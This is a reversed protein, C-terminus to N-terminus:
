QGSTPGRQALARQVRDVLVSAPTASTVPLMLWGGLALESIRDRDGDFASRTLGHPGWGDFDIGVKEPRYGVDICYRRGNVVVWIQQEPTRCGAKLLTSVAWIEGDSDSKEGVALCKDLIPALHAVRRRGRRRVDGLVAVVEAYSAIRYQHVKNLMREVSDDGLVASMDLATRAPTTCPIGDVVTLHKPPLFNSRHAKVGALRVRTAPGTTIEPRLSAIGPFGHLWAASRHSAVGDANLCAALIERRQTAPSGSVVYVSPRKRVIRGARIDAEVRDDGVCATGQRWTVLGHQQEAIEDWWM